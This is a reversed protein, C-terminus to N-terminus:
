KYNCFRHWGLGEKYIVINGTHYEPIHWWVHGKISLESTRHSLRLYFM